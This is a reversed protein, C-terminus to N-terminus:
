SNSLAYYLAGGIFLVSVLVFAGIGAAVLWIIMRMRERSAAILRMESEASLRVDPLVKHIRESEELVTRFANDEALFAEIMRKSDASAEGARYLPWLDSIVDRTVDAKM